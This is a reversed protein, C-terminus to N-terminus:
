PVRTRPGAVQSVTRVEHKFIRSYLRQFPDVFLYEILLDIKDNIYQGQARVQLVLVLVSGEQERHMGIHMHMLMGKQMYMGMAVTATCVHAGIAHGFLCITETM